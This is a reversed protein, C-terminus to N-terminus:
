PKKNSLEKLIHAEIQVVLQAKRLNATKGGFSAVKTNWVPVTYTSISKSLYAEKWDIRTTDKKPMQSRQSSANAAVLDRTLLAHIRECEVKTAARVEEENPLDRVIEQLPEEFACAELYNYEVEVYEDPFSKGLNFSPLAQKIQLDRFALVLSEPVYELYDDEKLKEDSADPEVAQIDERFPIRALWFCQSHTETADLPWVHCLVALEGQKM